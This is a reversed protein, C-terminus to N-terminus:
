IPNMNKYPYIFYIDFPITGGYDQLDQQDPSQENMGDSM